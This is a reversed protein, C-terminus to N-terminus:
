WCRRDVRRVFPVLWGTPRMTARSWRSETYEHFSMQDSSWDLEGIEAWPGELDPRGQPIHTM